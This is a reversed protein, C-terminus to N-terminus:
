RLMKVLFLNLDDDAVVQEGYRVYADNWYIGNGDPIYGRKGYLVQAAGYDSFLGVGLGAISSREGITAEARDMLMSGIGRRRYRILVNFDQIEPIQRARFSPYASQWVVNVYGAFLGDAEAIWSVREGRAQEEWYRLYQEAPKEWGQERFAASITEADTERLHRVAINSSNNDCVDLGEAQIKM